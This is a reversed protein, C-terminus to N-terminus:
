RLAAGDGPSVPEGGADAFIDFGSLVRNGNIIVDFVRKGPATWFHEVFYLTVNRSSGPTFGGL